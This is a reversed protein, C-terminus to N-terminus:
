TDRHCLAHVWPELRGQVRTVQNVTWGADILAKRLAPERWYVFWRPQGLKADSWAEGDGEKLTLAFVGGPRSAAHCVRPAHGFDDRDLHLLVANALVADFPGGLDDSRVDLVRAQHGAQQLRGVFAPTADTRDVRLGRQELYLAERGPGSGLELVKGGPVHAVVEDLLVTVAKAVGAPTGAFYADVGDQYAALTKDTPSTM